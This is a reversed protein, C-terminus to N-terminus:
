TFMLSRLGECPCGSCCFKAACKDVLRSACLTKSTRPPLTHVVTKTVRVKVSATKGGKEERKDPKGCIGVKHSRVGRASWRLGGDM